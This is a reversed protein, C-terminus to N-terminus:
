RLPRPLFIPETTTYRKIYCLPLIFSAFYYFIAKMTMYEFFLPRCKLATKFMEDVTLRAFIILLVRMLPYFWCTFSHTQKLLIKISDFDCFQFIYIAINISPSRKQSNFRHNRYNNKNLKGGVM